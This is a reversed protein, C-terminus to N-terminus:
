TAYGSVDGEGLIFTMHLLRGGPSEADGSETGSEGSGGGAGRGGGRQRQLGRGAHQGDGTGQGVGGRRQRDLVGGVLDEAGALGLEEAVGGGGDLAEEAAHRGTTQAGAAQGGVTQREAAAGFCCWV